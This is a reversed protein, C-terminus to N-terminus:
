TEHTANQNVKTPAKAGFNLQITEHMMEEEGM